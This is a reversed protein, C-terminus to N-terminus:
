GVDGPVTCSEMRNVQAFADIARSIQRDAKLTETFRRDPDSRLDDAYEQRDAIFVDWDDVWQRIGDNIRTQEAPVAARLQETMRRLSDNAQDVVDAREAPTPTQEATPLQEIEVRAQHCIEEAAEPFTTDALEDIMLGPDYIFLAYIWVGFTAAM